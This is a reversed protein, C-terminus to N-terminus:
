GLQALRARQLIEASTLPRIKVCPPAVTRRPAANSISHGVDMPRWPSIKRGAPVGDCIRHRSRIELLEPIPVESFASVPVRYIESRVTVKLDAAESRQTTSWLLRELAARTSLSLRARGGDDSDSSRATRCVSGAGSVAGRVGAIRPQVARDVGGIM